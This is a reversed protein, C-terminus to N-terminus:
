VTEYNKGWQSYPHKILSANRYRPDHSVEEGIWSPLDIRQEESELEVEAVILGKNDTLFEDVEWKIGAHMVKYRNKEIYPQLCLRALIEKADAVPIEYEYELRTIGETEGKITLFAQEGLLRVRIACDARSPLYGQCIHVAKNGVRWENGNVLFKREIEKGM